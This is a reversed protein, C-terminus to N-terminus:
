VLSYESYTFSFLSVVYVSIRSESRQEAAFIVDPCIAGPPVFLQDVYHLVGGNSAVLSKSITSNGCTEDSIEVSSSDALPWLKNRGQLTELGTGSSALSKLDDASISEPVINYKLISTLSNKNQLIYKLKYDPFDQLAQNSVAFLTVNSKELYSTLGSSRFGSLIESLSSDNEVLDLITSDSSPNSCAVLPLLTILCLFKKMTNNTSSHFNPYGIFDSFVQLFGVNLRKM